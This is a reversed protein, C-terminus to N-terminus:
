DGRLRRVLHLTHEKTIGYDELTHGDELQKGFWIIRLDKGGATGTEDEIDRKLAEITDTGSVNFTVTEGTLTKVFIQMSPFQMPPRLVLSCRFCPRLSSIRLLASAMPRACRFGVESEDYGAAVLDARDCFANCAQRVTYGLRKVDAAKFGVDRLDRATLGATRLGDEGVRKTAHAGLWQLTSAASQAKRAAALLARASAAAAAKQASAESGAAAADAEATLAKEVVAAKATVASMSSEVWQLAELAAREARAAQFAHLYDVGKKFPSPFANAAEADVVLQQIGQTSAGSVDINEAYWAVFRLWARCSRPACHAHFLRSACCRATCCCRRAERVVDRAARIRDDIERLRAATSKAAPGATGAGGTASAPAPVNLTAM